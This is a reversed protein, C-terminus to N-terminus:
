ILLEIERQSVGTVIVENNDGIYVNVETRVGFEPLYIGPEISFLAGPILRRDDQTELNDINAGNGHTDEGISHGTRHIFYEGYGAAAIVGRAVDDVEYGHVAHGGALRERIFAIATERADVAVAFVRARDDPITDGAHYMWTYDAMIAGPENVKAWFDILVTDGPCIPTDREPSPEYHPNSAHANVAVIAGHDAVLNHAALFDSLFRQVSVESIPRGLRLAVAMDAAVMQQAEILRESARRHSDWQYPSLRAEFFQVLDASSVVEVDQSRVLEITGADVRSVMPVAAMPSYEMAVREGTPLVSALAEHLERWSHYVVRRGPLADLNYMELASVIKVPEGNAPIWYFWRRTYVGGPGLGLVRYALPNSRRFDYLLWGALGAERLQAPIDTTIRDLNPM